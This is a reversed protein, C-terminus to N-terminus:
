ATDMGDSEEDVDVSKRRISTRTEIEFVAEPHLEHEDVVTEVKEADVTTVESPDIGASELVGAMADDFSQGTENLVKRAQDVDFSQVAEPNIGSRSIAELVQEPDRLSQRTRETHDVTAFRGSLTSDSETQDLLKDRVTKRRKELESKAKSLLGYRDVLEATQFEELNEIDNDWDSTIITLLADVIPDSTDGAAASETDPGAETDTTESGVDSTEGETGSEATQWPITVASPDTATRETLEVTTYQLDQDDSGDFVIGLPTAQEDGVLEPNSTGPYVVSFKDDQWEHHHRTGGGVIAHLYPDLAGTVDYATLEADNQTGVAPWVSQNLCCIAHSSGSAWSFRENRLRERPASTVYDIGYLAISGVDTPTPSLREVGASTELRELPDDDAAVSRRGGIACLRTAATDLQELVREAALLLEEDPSVPKFFDGTHVIADLEHTRAFQVIHELPATSEDLQLDSVCLITPSRASLDSSPRPSGDGDTTSDPEGTKGPERDGREDAGDTRDDWVRVCFATEELLSRITDGSVSYEDKTGTLRILVAREEVDLQSLRTEVAEQDDGPSLELTATTYSRTELERFETEIQQDDITYHAACREPPDEGTIVRKGLTNETPGPGFVPTTGHETSIYQEVGGVIYATPNVNMATEIEELSEAVSATGTEAVAITVTHDDPVARLTALQDDPCGADVGCCRVREDISVTRGGIPKLLGDDVLSEVRNDDIEQEKSSYTLYCPIDAAALRELEERTRRITTGPPSRHQFLRGTQVVADVSEDIAIDIAQVFADLYDAQRVSRSLNRRGLTATGINLIQTPKDNGALQTPGAQHDHNVEVDQQNSTGDTPQDDAVLEEDRGPEDTAATSKTDRGAEGELEAAIDRLSEAKERRSSLQESDVLTTVPTDSIRDAIEALERDRYSGRELYAAVARAQSDTLEPRNDPVVLDTVIDVSDDSANPLYADSSIVLLQFATWPVIDGNGLGLQEVLQTGNSTLSFRYRGNPFSAKIQIDSESSDVLTPPLAM